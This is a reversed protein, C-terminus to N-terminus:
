FFGLELRADESMMEMTWTPEWVLEVSAGTVGEVSEVKRQVEGPLTGAVPCGPSTLTMKVDIFRDNQVDIEYILGMDYINVPIEPDYVTRLAEIIEEELMGREVPNLPKADDYLNGNLRSSSANANAPAVSTPITQAVMPLGSERRAGANPNQTLTEMDVSTASTAADSPHEMQGAAASADRAGGTFQDFLKNLAMSRDAREPVKGLPFSSQM